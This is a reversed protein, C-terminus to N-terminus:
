RAPSRAGTGVTPGAAKPLLQYRGVVPVDIGRKRDHVVFELVWEGVPDNEEGVMTLVFESMYTQPVPITKTRLARLARHETVKGNPRIMRLDCTVDVYGAGDFSPNTLFLLAWVKEGIRLSGAQEIRPLKNGPTGWKRKWEPDATVVVAAGFGDRVKRWEPEAARAVPEKTKAGVEAPALAAALCVLAFLIRPNRM